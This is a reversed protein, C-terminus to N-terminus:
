EAKVLKLVSTEEEHVVRLLYLGAPQYHIDLTYTNQGPFVQVPVKDVTVGATTIIELSANGQVASSFSVNIKSFAPVPWLTTLSLVPNRASVIRSYTVFGDKDVQKLQYYNLGPLPHQDTFTYRGRGEDTLFVQGVAEPKWAPDSFRLIEFYDGGHEELVQWSLVINNDAVRATFNATYIPLPSQNVETEVIQWQQNENGNINNNFQIIASNEDPSQNNNDIALDNIRNTIGFSTQDSLVSLKWQQRANPQDASLSLPTLAQDDPSSIRRGTGRNTFTYFREGNVQTNNMIWEQNHNGESFPRQTLSASESGPALVRGTYKNVIKYYTESGLEGTLQMELWTLRKSLYEKVFDVHEEYTGSTKNELYVKTDLTPWVEYNRKQSEALTTKMGTITQDLFNRLGGAKLQKWRVRVAERFAPDELMRKIWVRNAEYHGNESMRKFTADGLREDNNYAIDFDWLPGFYIKPDNRKKFMYTSWFSDPNGTIECAIYWNVLSAQDFYPMYGKEADRFDDSFLRDEMAQVYSSIYQSQAANIEDDDPYKITIKMGRSTYFKSVEQDAFGDAELLYGGTIAPEETDDANVKDIAVRQDAREIQDTLTYNGMYTNNLYVDVFRYPCSYPLGMFKSLEFTLANRLLTKDAYNALLVWNKEKAPMGLLQYKSALRIRYPKKAMQWTSNGRGRIEVAGDYLGEMDPSGAVSLHGPRWTTKSDVPTGEDTTIYLTPLNTLQGSQSYVFNATICLLFLQIAYFRIKM